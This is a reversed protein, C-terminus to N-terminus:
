EHTKTNLFNSATTENRMEYNGMNLLLSRPVPSYVKGAGRGM